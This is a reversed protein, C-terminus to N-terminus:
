YLPIVKTSSLIGKKGFDGCLRGVFNNYIQLLKIDFYFLIFGLFFSVPTKNKTFYLIDFCPHHTLGICQFWKGQSVLM